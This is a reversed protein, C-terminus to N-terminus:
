WDLDTIKFSHAIWGLIPKVPPVTTFFRGALAPSSLSAPKIKPDPLNGPTPFPLRSWYEQRFFEMSLPVQRAVSWSTMFIPCSQTLVLSCVFDRQNSSQLIQSQILNTSVGNLWCINSHRKQKMQSNSLWRKRKEKRHVSLWPSHTKTM